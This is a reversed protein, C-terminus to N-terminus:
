GRRNRIPPRHGRPPPAASRRCAPPAGSRARPAMSAAIAGACFIAAIAIIAPRRGYRDSFRGCSLGGAVAGVLIASAVLEQQTHGLKFEASISLLAGSIIGTDYGYLAGGSAAVISVLRMFGNM